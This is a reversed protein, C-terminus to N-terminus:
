GAARKGGALKIKLERSELDVSVIVYSFLALVTAAALLLSAVQYAM